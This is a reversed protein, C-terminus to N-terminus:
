EDVAGELTLTNRDSLLRLAANTDRVRRALERLIARTIEPDKLITEAFAKGDLRILVSPETVRAELSHKHDLLLAIEGLFDPARVPRFPLTHEPHYLHIEGRLLIWLAAPDGPRFLIEGPTVSRLRSAALIRELSARSAHRFLPIRSLTSLAKELPPTESVAPAQVSSPQQFHVAFNEDPSRHFGGRHAEIRFLIEEIPDSKELVTKM